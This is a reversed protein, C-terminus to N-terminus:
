LALRKTLMHYTEPDWVRPDTILLIYDSQSLLAQLMRIPSQAPHYRSPLIFSPLYICSQLVDGSPTQPPKRLGWTTGGLGLSRKGTSRYILHPGEYAQVTLGKQLFPKPGGYRTEPLDGHSPDHRRPATGRGGTRWESSGGPRRPAPPLACHRHEPHLLPHTLSMQRWVVQSVLIRPRGSNRRRKSAVKLLAVDLM